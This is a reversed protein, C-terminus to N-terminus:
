LDGVWFFLRPASAGLAVTLNEGSGASRVSGQERWKAVELADAAGGTSLRTVEMRETTYEVEADVIGEAIITYEVQYQRQDDVSTYTLILPVEADEDLVLNASSYGDEAAIEPTDAVYLFVGPEIRLEDRDCSATALTAVIALVQPSIKSTGPDAAM